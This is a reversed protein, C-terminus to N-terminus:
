KLAASPRMTSAIPFSGEARRGASTPRVRRLAEVLEAVAIPKSLYDDMGAELCRARDEPFAAATVAIIRPQRGPPLDRRVRRTAELGDMDPMQIDMLVVDYSGRELSKLLDTGNAVWDAQYGLRKLFRLVVERNLARDEAVLIRLDPLDSFGADAAGKRRAPPACEEVVDVPITFRFTAGRGPQSEVTLCGGMREVLSKSIALGLGTGGFQRSISGDAQTFSDFIRRQQELPIGPGTDRVVFSIRRPGGSGGLGMVSISVEGAATFKVANGLLNVLVQRLRMADGLIARPTFPDIALFLRLGKEASQVALLGVAKEVVDRVDLPASELPLRGAEIKSFDLIDNILSLLAEASSRITDLYDRQEVTLDTAALLEAFGLVGTMPTRIEHSMNALLLSKAQNAAEAQRKAQELAEQNRLRGRREAVMTAAESVLLRIQEAREIAVPGEGHLFLIGETAGEVTVPLAEETRPLTASEEIEMPLDPLGDACLPVVVAPKVSGGARRGYWVRRLGYQEVLAALLAQWLMEESAEPGVGRLAVLVCQFAILDSLKQDLDRATM